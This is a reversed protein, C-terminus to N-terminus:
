KLLGEKEAIAIAKNALLNAVLNVLDESAIIQTKLKRQKESPMRREM